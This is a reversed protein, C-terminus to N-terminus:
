SKWKEEDNNNVIEQLKMKDFIEEGSKSTRGNAQGEVGGRRDVVADNGLTFNDVAPRGIGLGFCFADNLKERKFYDFKFRESLNTCTNPSATAKLDEYESQKGANRQFAEMNWSCFTMVKSKAQNQNKKEKKYRM